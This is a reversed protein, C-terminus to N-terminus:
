SSRDYFSRSSQWKHHFLSQLWGHGVAGLLVRHRGSSYDFIWQCCQDVRLVLVIRWNNCVLLRSWLQNACCRLTCLRGHVVRLWHEHWASFRLQHHFIQVRHCSIDTTAMFIIRPTPTTKSLFPLKRIDCLYVNITTREKCVFMHWPINSSTVCSDIVIVIAIVNVHHGYTQWISFWKQYASDVWMMSANTGGHWFIEVVCCRRFNYCM